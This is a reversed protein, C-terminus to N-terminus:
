PAAAGGRTTFFDALFGTEGAGPANWVVAVDMPSSRFVGHDLLHHVKKAVYGLSDIIYPEDSDRDGIVVSFATGGWAAIFALGRRAAATLQPGAVNGDAQGPSILRVRWRGRNRLEWTSIYAEGGGSVFKRPLGDVELQPFIGTPRAGPGGSTSLTWTNDSVRTLVNVFRFRNRLYVRSADGLAVAPDFISRGVNAKVEVPAPTELTLSAEWRPRGARTGAQRLAAGGYGGALRARWAAGDAAPLWIWGTRNSRLWHLFEFVRDDEVMATLRWTRWPADERAAQRATGAGQLGTREARLTGGLALDSKIEAYHPWFNMNGKPSDLPRREVEMDAMWRSAGAAPAAQQYAIRGPGGVFRGQTQRDGVGQPGLKLFDFWGAGQADAWTRFAELRGAKVRARLRWTEVVGSSAAAQRAAGDEFRARTVDGPAPRMSISAAEVGELETMMSAVLMTLVVVGPGGVGFVRGDACRSLARGM